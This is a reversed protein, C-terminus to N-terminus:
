EYCVSGVLMGAQRLLNATECLPLGVIASYSGELREIFMGAVGQIAYAGAKDHPEGTKWYWEIESDQLPRFKVRSAVVVNFQALPQPASRENLTLLSVATYVSHWRGSLLRLMRRADEIDAPKGLIETDTSVTTDAGLILRKDGSISDFLQNEVVARAKGQALRSVYDRACEQAKVQEDISAAQVSFPVSLLELLHRRRPSSSALVL